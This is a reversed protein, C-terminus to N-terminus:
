GGAVFRDTRAAEIVLALDTEMVDLPRRDHLWNNRAVFWQAVDWGDFEPGLAVVVRASAECLSLDEVRLQFLPLWTWGGWTFRIAREFGEPRVPCHAQVSQTECRFRRHELKSLLELERALGRRSRYSRMMDVFCGDASVWSSVGPLQEFGALPPRPGRHASVDFRLAPAM